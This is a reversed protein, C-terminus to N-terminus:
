QWGIINMDSVSHSWEPFPPWDIRSSPPTLNSSFVTWTSQLNPRKAIGNFGWSYKYLPIWISDNGPPNPPLYMFWSDATFTRSTEVFQSFGDLTVDPSDTFTLWTGDDIGLVNGNGGLYWFPHDGNDLAPLSGSYILTQTTGNPLPLTGTIQNSKLIQTFCISGLGQPFPTPTIAKGDFQIGPILGFRGDQITVDSMWWRSGFSPSWLNVSQAGTVNGFPGRGPFVALADCTILSSGASERDKWYWKPNALSYFNNPLPVPGGSATSNNSTPGATFGGIINGPITWFYGQLTVSSGQQGQGGVLLSATCGQGVLIDRSYDSDVIPGALNLVVPTASASYSKSCTISGGQFPIKVKVKSSKTVSFSQGPNSKVSYRIRQELKGTGGISTGNVWEIGGMSQDLQIDFTETVRNGFNWGSM